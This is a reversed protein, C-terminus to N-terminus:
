PIRNPIDAREYFIGGIVPGAGADHYAIWYAGAKIWLFGLAALSPYPTPAPLGSEPDREIREAAEEVAMILRRTAELRDREEYFVRLADLQAEAEPSLPIM